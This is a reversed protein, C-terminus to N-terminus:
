KAPHLGWRAPKRRLKRGLEQSRDGSTVGRMAPATRGRAM